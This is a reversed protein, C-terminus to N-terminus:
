KVGATWNQTRTRQLKAENIGFSLLKRTPWYSVLSSFYNCIYIIVLTLNKIPPLTVTDPLAVLPIMISHCKHYSHEHARSALEVCQCAFQTLQVFMHHLDFHLHKM